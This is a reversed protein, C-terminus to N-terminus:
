EERLIDIVRLRIAKIVPIAGFIMSISLAVVASLIVVEFNISLNFAIPQTLMGISYPIDIENFIFSIVSTSILGLVIGLIAIFFIELLFLKIIFSSKLGISRLIGIEKKRENILRYFTAMVSLSGICLIVLTFFNRFLNLFSLTKKYFDGSDFDKWSGILVGPFKKQVENAFANKFELYQTHSNLKLAYFSIDKSQLLEQAFTLSTVVLREDIEKFLGDQVGVVKVDESNLQGTKTTVTLNMWETPCILEINKKFYGTKKIPITINQKPYCRLYSSIRSGLNIDTPKSNKSLTEGYITNKKWNKGRLNEGADLDYALGLFYFQNDGNTISGTYYLEPVLSKIEKSHRRLFQSIIEQEESSILQHFNSKRIMIDGYMNRESYTTEFILKIDQIYAQFVCLSLFSSAVALIAIITKKRHSLINKLSLSILAKM